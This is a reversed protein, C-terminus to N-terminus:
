VAGWVAWEVARSVILLVLWTLLTFGALMIATRLKITFVVMALMVFLGARLVFELMSELQYHRGLNIFSVLHTVILVATLRTAALQLDGLPRSLAMSLMFLGGIGCAALFTVIIIFKVLGTLRAMLGIQVEPVADGIRLHPFLGEAGALYGVALVLASMGGLAIPLWFDGRGPRCLPTDTGVEEDARSEDVEDQDEEDDSGREIRTRKIELAKIDFGCRLCVLSDEGPMLANCNPCTFQEELPVGKSPKEPPADSQRPLEDDRKAEEREPADTLPADKPDIPELEIPEPQKKPPPEGSSSSRDAARDNSDPAEGNKNDSRETMM